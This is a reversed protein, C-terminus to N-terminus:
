GAKIVSERINIMYEKSSIRGGRAKALFNMGNLGAEYGKKPM